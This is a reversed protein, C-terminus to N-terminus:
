GGEKRRQSIPPPSLPPHREDLSLDDEHVILEVLGNEGALKREVQQLLPLDDHFINVRWFGEGDYTSLVASQGNPDPEM